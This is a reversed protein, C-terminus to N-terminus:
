QVTAGCPIGQLVLYRYHLLSHLYMIVDRSKRYATAARIAYM